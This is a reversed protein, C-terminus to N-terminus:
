TMRSFYLLALLTSLIAEGEFVLDVFMQSVYVLGRNFTIM